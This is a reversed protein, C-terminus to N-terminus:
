DWTVGTWGFGGDVNRWEGREFAREHGMMVALLRCGMASVACVVGGSSLDALVALDMLYARGVLSRLRITEPGAPPPPSSSPSAAAQAPLGLNWFMAAFFGGEWGSTEDDVFKHMVTKDPRSAAAGPGADERGALRIQAQARTAGGMEAAGYVLPDDSALVFFSRDRAAGGHGAHGLSENLLGHAAGAYSSLPIYSDAYQSELPRRDGHRVHIGVVRGDGDNEGDEGDGARTMARHEAVRGEVYERDPGTLRFLAEYGERALAYLEAQAPRRALAAAPGEARDDGEPVAAGLVDRANAASVALHRARRPCPVVEHPRPPRCGPDPAGGGLVGAYQGYAWRRDDVFFARGERRALGYAMWLTMLARGLGADDSELVYTLSTACPAKEGLSHGDVGLLDGVKRAPAGAPGPLFGREEAEKVDVFNRDVGSEGGILSIQNLAAPSHSHLKNVRSSVEKCKACVDSYEKVTLPFEHTPPISVTWWPRGRRDTVVIPTPFDPLDDQGVMEYEEDDSARSWGIAPVVQGQRISQTALYLILVAGALWLLLRFVRSPRPSASPKRM